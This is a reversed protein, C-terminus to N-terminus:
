AGGPGDGVMNLPNVVGDFQTRGIKVVDSWQEAKAAINQQLATMKPILQEDLETVAAIHMAIPFTDNSSQGMNVHDNPGVPQQSGLAGISFHILSRQTQAGWYRDAPVDVSGLSDFEIRMGIADIGVPEQTYSPIVEPAPGQM